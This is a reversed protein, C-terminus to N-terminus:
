RQRNVTLSSLIVFQHTWSVSAPTLICNSSRSTDSLAVSSPQLEQMARRVHEQFRTDDYIEETAQSQHSETRKRNKRITEELAQVREVLMKYRDNTDLCGSSQGSKSTPQLRGKETDYCRISKHQLFTASLSNLREQLPDNTASSPGHYEPLAESVDKIFASFRRSTLDVATELSQFRTQTERLRSLIDYILWMPVKDGYKETVLAQLVESEDLPLGAASFKQLFERLDRCTDPCKKMWNWVPQSRYSDNILRAIADSVNKQIEANWYPEPM